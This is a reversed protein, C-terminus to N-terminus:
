NGTNGLLPKETLRHNTDVDSCRRIFKDTSEILKNLEKIERAVSDIFDDLIDLELQRKVM